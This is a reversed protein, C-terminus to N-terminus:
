AVDWWKDITPRSIGTDRHCEMKPGGTREEIPEILVTGRTGTVVLQRRDFGNVESACTKVFSVGNKYRFLAFGYDQSDVGDYLTAMNYPLVEEPEGCFLYVLDVLHCGLFFMMGGKFRKLWARKQANHLVSMHAEVSFIDGLKGSEKLALCHRVAANYRYMYGVHLPLNKARMTEVRKQFAPYDTGCPKDM